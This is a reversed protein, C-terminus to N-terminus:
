DILFCRAGHLDAQISQLAEVHRSSAVPDPADAIPVSEMLVGLTNLAEDKLHVLYRWDFWWLLPSNLSAILWPDANALFFTKDNSLSGTIDFSFQPHYQIVQYYIKPDSFEGYYACPRLEWWFRGQDERHRLGRPKGTKSDFVEEFKKMHRHLAPYAARFRQEAQIEDPLDAWPWHHDSSSKLVIM